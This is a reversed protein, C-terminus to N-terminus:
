FRGRLKNDTWQRVAETLAAQPHLHLKACLRMFDDAADPRVNLDLKKGHDRFSGHRSKYVEVWDVFEMAAEDHAVGFFGDFAFKRITMNRFDIGSFEQYAKLSRVTGLDYGSLDVDQRDYVGLLKELRRIQREQRTIGGEVLAGSAEHTHGEPKVPGTVYAHYVCRAGTHWIDFGHTWLRVAMPSEDATFDMKPDIPVVQDILPRGFMCHACVFAGLIPRPEAGAVVCLKQVQMRLEPSNGQFYLAHVVGCAMAADRTYKDDDIPRAMWDAGPSTAYDTLVARENGCLRWQDIMAVDWFQAFRMHADMHLVFDEGGYLQQCVYRAGCTGPADKKPYYKVRCGPMAELAELRSRDDDQLCVAFRVREPNAAMARAANLTNLIDPDCYAPIEILITSALDPDKVKALYEVYPAGPLRAALAELASKFARTGTSSPSQGADPAPQASAGKRGTHREYAAEWDYLGMDDPGDHVQGFQGRAAFSRITMAKFDVGCFAQYEELTRASGLGFEGLDVDPWDRIGLLKEMRHLERGGRSIGEDTPASESRIRAGYEDGWGYKAREDAYLHFVFEAGLQYIDCGHTWYRVCMGMEDGFFHMKPDVPVEVGVAGRHFLLHACIFAGLRPAPGDFRIGGVRLSAEPKDKPFFAATLASGGVSALETFARDDVPLGLMDSTFRKAYSSLVAKENGCARWQDVLAVDWFRAFRMHADLILVFDEGGYLKGCEYRAPCTGPADKLAYHKVKVCPIAALGDILEQDDDQLCVAFRIREPNAAMAIAAQVTKVVQKDNYSPIEVLITSALDPSKVSELYKLYGSDRLRLSETRLQAAFRKELGGPMTAIDNMIFEEYWGLADEGRQGALRSQWDMPRRDADAHERGFEGRAAFEAIEAYRFSIGSYAEYEDLTRVTGLGFEGLDVDPHDAIGLLKETRLVQRRKRTLASGVLVKNGDVHRGQSGYAAAFDVPWLHYVPLVSPHFIDYGHTYYRVAVPVEDGTFDMYKDVPVDVDIRGPGFVFHACILAGPRPRGDYFFTGGFAASLDWRGEGFWYPVIVRPGEHAYKRSPLRGGGMPVAMAFRDSGVPLALEDPQLWLAWTSLIAKPNRCRRWQDILVADWYRAFRMHADVHFVFDEGDYLRQCEYRAACTGPADAKAFHKVRVSPMARMAQLREGDDDQLCVALRIRDPNAANALAAKVTPIVEPDCYAPIEVLITSTLDPDDMDAVYDLYKAGPLRKRDKELRADMRARLAALRKNANEPGTM